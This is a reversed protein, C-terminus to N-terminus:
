MVRPVANGEDSAKRASRPREDLAAARILAPRLSPMLCTAISWRIGRRTSRRGLARGSRWAASCRWPGRRAAQQRSAPMRGCATSLGPVAAPAVDTRTVTPRSAGPRRWRCRRLFRRAPLPPRFIAAEQGTFMLGVARHARSCRAGAQLDAHRMGRARGNVACALDSRATRRAGASQRRASIV